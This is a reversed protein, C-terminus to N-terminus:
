NRRSLFCSAFRRRPAVGPMATPPRRNSSRPFWYCQTPDGFSPTTCLPVCVRWAKKIEEAEQEDPTTPAQIVEFGVDRAMKMRDPYSLKAPLMELLVGKKIPLPAPPPAALPSRSAPSAAVLETFGGVGLGASCAATVTSKLFERRSPNRM